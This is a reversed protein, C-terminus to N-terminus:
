PDSFASGYCSPNQIARPIGFLAHAKEVFPSADDGTKQAFFNNSSLCKQFLLSLLLLPVIM